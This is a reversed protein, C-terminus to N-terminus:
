AGQGWGTMTEWQGHLFQLLNQKLSYFRCLIINSLTDGVAMRAGASEGKDRGKWIINFSRTCVGSGGWDPGKKSNTTLSQCGYARRLNGDRRCGKIPWSCPPEGSLRWGLSEETTGPSGGSSPSWTRQTM